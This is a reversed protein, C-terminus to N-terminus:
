DIFESTQFKMLILLRAKEIMEDITLKSTGIYGDFASVHSVYFRHAQNRSSVRGRERLVDEDATVYLVFVNERGFEAFYDYVDDSAFLRTYTYRSTFSSDEMPQATKFRAIELPTDTRSSPYVIGQKELGAIITSKGSCDPGILILLKM